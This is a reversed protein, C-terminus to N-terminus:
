GGETGLVTVHKLQLGGLTITVQRGPAILGKTNRYLLYYRGGTHLDHAHAKMAVAFIVRKSKEDVLLPTAQITAAVSMAKDVDLVVYRVDVMGGDASTGIQTFRVGWRAEISASTPMTTSSSRASALGFPDRVVLVAVAALGVAIVTLGVTGRACLWDRIAILVARGRPKPGLPAGAGSTVRPPPAVAGPGAIM